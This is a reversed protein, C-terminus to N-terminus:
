AEFSEECTWLGRFEKAHAQFGLEGSRVGVTEEGAGTVPTLSSIKFETPLSVDQQPAKGHAEIWKNFGKIVAEVVAFQADARMLPISSKSYNHVTKRDTHSNVM